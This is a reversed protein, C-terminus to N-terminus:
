DLDFNLSKNCLMDNNLCTPTHPNAFLYIKPKNPRCTTNVLRWFDEVLTKQTAETEEFKALTLNHAREAKLFEDYFVTTAKLNCGDLATPSSMYAWYCRYIGKSDKIGRNDVFYKNKAKQSKKELLMDNQELLATIPSIVSREINVQNNRILIFNDGKRLLEIIKKEMFYSKGSGKLTIIVNMDGNFINEQQSITKNLNIKQAMTFIGKLVDKKSRKNKFWQLM